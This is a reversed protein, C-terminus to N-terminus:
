DELVDIIHRLHHAIWGFGIFLSVIVCAFNFLTPNGTAISCFVASAVLVFFPIMYSFEWFYDWNTRGM